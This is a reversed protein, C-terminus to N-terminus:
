FKAKLKNVFAKVRDKSADESKYFSLMQFKCGKTCAGFLAIKLVKKVPQRLIFLDVWWPSGLTTVVKVEKLNDLRPQITGLDKAHDYAFGPAWVRDFWGKLMAPFGFWWTPFILVLSEAEQLQQIDIKLRSDDFQDAYYSKREAEKLAPEFDSEYLNLLTIEYGKETLHKVTEDCFHHCLSDKLPHTLVVLCKM